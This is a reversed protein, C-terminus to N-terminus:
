EAFHAYVVVTAAPNTGGVKVSVRFPGLLPLSQTSATLTATTIAATKFAPPPLYLYDNAAASRQPFAAVDCWTTGDPMLCEIYTDITPTTGSVASVVRQFIASTFRDAGNMTASNTTAAGTLAQSTFVTQNFSTPSGQTIKEGAV